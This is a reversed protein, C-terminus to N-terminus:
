PTTTSLTFTVAGSYAGTRLPDMAAISQRFDIAFVDNTTPGNWSSKAPTIQVPTRLAFAGNRLTTESTSLTADGATSTVTATSSATYVKTM